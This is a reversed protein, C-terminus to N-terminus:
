RYLQLKVFNDLLNINIGRMQKYNCCDFIVIIHQLNCIQYKWFFHFDLLKSGCLRVLIFNSIQSKCSDFHQKRILILSFEIFVKHIAL